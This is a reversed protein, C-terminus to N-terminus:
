SDVQPRIVARSMAASRAAVYFSRECSDVVDHEVDELLVRIGLDPDFGAENLGDRVGREVAGTYDENPWDVTSEFEYRYHTSLRLSVGASESRPGLHEIYRFSIYIQGRFKEMHTTAWCSIILSGHYSLLSTSLGDDIRV